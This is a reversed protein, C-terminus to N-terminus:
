FSINCGISLLRAIPYTGFGIGGTEPDQGPFSTITLLNEGSFFVRMNSCKFRQTWQKPITYGVQLNKLKLYTADHLEATNAQRTRASATLQAYNATAYNSNPDLEPSAYAVEDFWFFDNRANVPISNQANSIIPNNLGNGYLVYYMGGQGSWLMSVDFGKYQASLNVGFNYKPTSSKGTWVRDYENGYNGDGNNDAYITEGYWIKTRSVAATTQNNFKYGADVMKRVWDLDQSTRIMGDKPGGNPDVAGSGDVYTGSGRYVTQLFQEYLLHGELVGDSNRVASLNMYKYTPNGLVDLVTEDFGYELAGMYKTVRNSNKSFNAGISYRVNGIRDNWNVTLELGRNRVSASNEKPVGVDGRASYNYISPVLVGRTQRQYVDFEVNLRQNLFQADFGINGTTVTEWTLELNPLQSQYLGKKTSENLALGVSGYLAQWDYYGSTVNGLQGWSARLKLGEVVWKLPAFFKEESARWGLSVSPFVGYKHGTAFRSSGDRRVNAEVLYKGKYGYNVRGFFSKMAYDREYSGGISNMEIGTTIDTIAYDLLGKKSASFGNYNWYTTEYGALAAVDHDGFTKFFNATAIFNKAVQRTYSRTTTANDLDGNYESLVENMRFSWRKVNVDHSRQDWMADQYNYKVDLKLYDAIDVGAFWTTNIRTTINTGDTNVVRALSNEMNQSTMTTNIEKGDSRRELAGYKGNYEPTMAPVSQNLYLLGGDTAVNGVEGYRHNVYSQTGVRLFDAIKTELNARFSYEDLATNPMTGPNSQYGASLLYSSTEGGGQVQLTHKTYFETNYFYKTWDTNPYALWNPIGWENDTGNPNQDAKRWAEIDDLFFRLKTPDNAVGQPDGNIVVRNHMEMWEATRSEIKFKSSVNEQAFLGSYTISPKTGKKGKKTTILIVGNAARSGYIAASAADKLVSINDVDVANVSNIANSEDVVVGDIVVLPSTSGGGFTGTGRISISAGDSGPKGSSQRVQVGAALGGLGQSLSAMPRNDLKEAGVSTVAGTLNIKKQVGYGVVVVEDLMKTDEELYVTVRGAKVAQEVTLYGVSSFTIVAGQRVKLTFNGDLDTIAGNRTGKEVVSVGIVPENTAKDLVQGQATIADQAYMCGIDFSLFALCAFLLRVIRKRKESIMNREMSM